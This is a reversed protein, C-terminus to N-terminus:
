FEWEKQTSIKKVSRGERHAHIMSVAVQYDYVMKNGGTKGDKQAEVLYNRMRLAAHGEPINAGDGGVMDMFVQANSSDKDFYMGMATYFGNRRIAENPYEHLVKAIASEKAVRFDELEDPSFGNGKREMKLWMKAISLEKGRRHVSATCLEKGEFLLQRVALNRPANADTYLIATHPLGYVVLTELPKKSVVAGLLRHQGEINDGDKNFKLVNGTEKEFRNAEMDHALRKVNSENIPRNRARKNMLIYKAMEPTIIAWEWKMTDSIFPHSTVENVNIEATLRSIFEQESERTIRKRM